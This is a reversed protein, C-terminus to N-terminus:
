AARLAFLHGVLLCFLMARLMNVSLMRMLSKIAVQLHQVLQEGCLYFSPLAEHVSLHSILLLCLYNSVFSNFPFLVFCGLALSQEHLEPRCCVEKGQRCGCSCRASGHCLAAARQGM